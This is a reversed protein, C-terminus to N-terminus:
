TINKLQERPITKHCDKCLYITQIIKYKKCRGTLYNCFFCPRLWGSSLSSNKYTGFLEM